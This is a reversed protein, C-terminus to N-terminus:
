QLRLSVGMVHSIHKLNRLITYAFQESKAEMQDSDNMQGCFACKKSVEPASLVM